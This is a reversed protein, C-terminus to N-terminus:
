RDDDATVLVEISGGLQKWRTRPYYTGLIERYTEGERAASYAGYQSMGRGHGSGDGEITIVADDPVDYPDDAAAPAAPLVLVVAATLAVLRIGRSMRAM